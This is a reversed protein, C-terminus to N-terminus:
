ASEAQEYRQLIRRQDGASLRSLLAPIGAECVAERQRLMQLRRRREPAAVRLDTVLRRYEMRLWNRGAFLGICDYLDQGFEERTITGTWDYSQKVKPLASRSPPLNTWGCAACCDAEIHSSCEPCDM